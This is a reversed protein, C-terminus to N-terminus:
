REVRRAGLRAPTSGRWKLPHVSTPPLWLDYAPNPQLEQWNLDLESSGCSNQFRRTPKPTKRESVTLPYESLRSSSDLPNAACWASDPDPLAWMAIIVSSAPQWSAPPRFKLRAVAPRPRFCPVHRWPCWCTM